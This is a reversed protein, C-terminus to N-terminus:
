SCLIQLAIKHIYLYIFIMDKGSPNEFLKTFEMYAIMLEFNVLNRLFWSPM